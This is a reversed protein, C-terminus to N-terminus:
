QATSLCRGIAEGLGDAQKTVGPIGPNTGGMLGTATLDVVAACTQQRLQGNIDRLYITVVVTMVGITIVLAWIARAVADGPTTSQDSSASDTVDVNM